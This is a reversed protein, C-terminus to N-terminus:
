LRGSGILTLRVTASANGTQVYCSGATISGTVVFITGHGTENVAGGVGPAAAFAKPYVFWGDSGAGTAATFTLISNGPAVPSGIKVPGYESSVKLGSAANSALEANGIESAGFIATTGSVNTGQIDNGSITDAYLQLPILGVRLGGSM